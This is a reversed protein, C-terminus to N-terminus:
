PESTKSRSIPQKTSQGKLAIQNLAKLHEVADAKEEDNLNSDIVILEELQYLLRKIGSKNANLSDAESSLVQAAIERVVKLVAIKKDVPVEDTKQRLDVSQNDNLMRVAIIKYSKSKGSKNEAKQQYRLQRHKTLMKRENLFDDSDAGMLKTVRNQERWAVFAIGLIFIITIAFSSPNGVTLLLMFIFGVFVTATQWVLSSIGNKAEEYLSIKKRNISVM